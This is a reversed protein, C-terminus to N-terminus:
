LKITATILRGCPVFGAKQLTSRSGINTPNCRAAPIRGMEYSARKLEQVLFSGYGKRRHNEAVEMYIDGFPNNYHFLIGGTAAVQGNHDIVFDGVPESSHPFAADRDAQTSPRFVADQITLNSTFGDEFLIAEHEIDVGCDFVMLTLLRDNTQAEIKHAQSVIALQRFLPLAAGRHRPLVYFETISDKPDARVGGVLGYGVTRGDLKLLYSDVWGRGHWSYLIIQCHMEHRYLDRLAAVENSPVLLAEIPMCDETDAFRLQIM